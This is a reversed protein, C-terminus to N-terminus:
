EEIEEEPEAGIRGGAVVTAYTEETEGETKPKAWADQTVEDEQLERM